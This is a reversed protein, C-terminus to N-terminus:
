GKSTKSETPFAICCILVHQPTTLLSIPTNKRNIPVNNILVVITEIRGALGAVARALRGEEENDQAM